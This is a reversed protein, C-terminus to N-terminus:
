CPFGPSCEWGVHGVGLVRWQLNRGQLCESSQACSMAATAAATGGGVDDAAETPPPPAWILAPVARAPKRQVRCCLSHVSGMLANSWGCLLSERHVPAPPFCWFPCFQLWRIQSRLLGHSGKAQGWIRQHEKCSVTM